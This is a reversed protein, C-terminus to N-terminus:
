TVACDKHYENASTIVWGRQAPDHCEYDRPPNSLNVDAVKGKRKVALSSKSPPLSERGWVQMATEREEATIM